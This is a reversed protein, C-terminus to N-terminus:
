SPQSQYSSPSALCDTRHPIRLLFEQESRNASALSDIVVSDGRLMKKSWYQAHGLHLVLVDGM